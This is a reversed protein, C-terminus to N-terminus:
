EQRAGVQKIVAQVTAALGRLKKKPVSCVALRIGKALPILFINDEELRDCVAEAGSEMPLTIFFGSVYPLYRLGCADAEALFLAAREKLLQNYVARAADLKAVKAPDKCINAVTKMAASNSNSWTARSTYQNIAVFENAISENPTICIMAGMRQGYMTFGKSCTYAVVVLINEPLNSFKTFFRRCDKKEGSYDLYAVDSVLIINKGNGKTVDALFALVRDWDSSTLAFGTPNNAPSNMIIVTNLQKAVMDKVHEAFSEFNFLGDKTLLHFERMSRGDDLCMSDYAGWHWDSTLIDDGEESYNHVVHHIVGSGGSTVCARIYGEPRSEGFCQDIVADLYDDYGQIPAYAVIESPTLAKFTDLVVDLMVMKGDEDLLSGVTGNIVHDPGLKEVLETARNNAGFIRDEASKGKAKPAAISNLM